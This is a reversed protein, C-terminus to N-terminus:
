DENKFIEKLNKRWWIISPIFIIWNGILYLISFYNLPEKIYLYSCIWGVLCIIFVLFEIFFTRM